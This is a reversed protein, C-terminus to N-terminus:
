APRAAADIQALQQRLVAVQARHWDRQRKLALLRAELADVERQSLEAHAEQHAARMALVESHPCSGGREVGLAASEEVVREWMEMKLDLLAGALGAEGRGAGRAAAGGRQTQALAERVHAQVRADLGELPERAFWAKGLLPGSALVLVTGIAVALLATVVGQPLGAAWGGPVSASRGSPARDFTSATTVWSAEHMLHHRGAGRHPSVFEPAEATSAPSVVNGSLGASAATSTTLYAEFPAGALSTQRRLYPAPTEPLQLRGELVECATALWHAFTARLEKATEVQIKSKFLCRKHFKVEGRLRLEVGGEAPTVDWRGNVVFSDGYPIDLFTSSTEVAFHTRDPSFRCLQMERVRTYKRSMFSPLPSNIKSTFQLERAFSAAGLKNWQSEKVDTEGLQQRINDRFSSAKSGQSFFARYFGLADTPLTAPPEM